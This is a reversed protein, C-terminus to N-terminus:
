QWLRLCFANKVKVKGTVERQQTVSVTMYYGIKQSLTYM